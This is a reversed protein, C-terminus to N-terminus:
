ANWGPAISDLYAARDAPLDDADFAARNIAIWAAMAEEDDISPEPTVRARAGASNWGPIEEDLHAALDADITGADHADIQEKLWITLEAETRESV